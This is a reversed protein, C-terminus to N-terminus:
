GSTIYATLQQIELERDALIGRVVDRMSIVGGVKNEVMVPMHRIGRDAMLALAEEVTLDPRACVVPHSMIDRVPTERSSKGALIVKRAYDRESVIGVLIEDEMILLAGVHKRAMQDIAEYVTADPPLSWVDRGKENLLDSVKKM